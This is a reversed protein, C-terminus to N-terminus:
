SQLGKLIQRYCEAFTSNYKGQKPDGFATAMRECFTICRGVIEQESIRVEPDDCFTGLYSKLRTAYGAAREPHGCSYTASAIENLNEQVSQLWKSPTVCSVDFSEWRSQELFTEYSLYKGELEKCMEQQLQEEERIKARIVSIGWDIISRDESSLRGKQSELRQLLKNLQEETLNEIQALQQRLSNNPMRKNM